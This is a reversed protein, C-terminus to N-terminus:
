QDDPILGAVNRESLAASVVAGFPPGKASSSFIMSEAGNKVFFNALFAFNAFRVKVASTTSGMTM